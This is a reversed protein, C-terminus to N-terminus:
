KNKEKELDALDARDGKVVEAAKKSLQSKKREERWGLIMWVIGVAGVIVMVTVLTDM